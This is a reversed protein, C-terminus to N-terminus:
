SPALGTKLIFRPKSSGKEPTERKGVCGGKRISGMGGTTIMAKSDDTNELMDRVGNGCDEQNPVDRCGRRTMTQALKSVSRKREQQNGELVSAKDASGIGGTTMTAKSTPVV